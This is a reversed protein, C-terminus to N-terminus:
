LERRLERFKEEAIRYLEQRFAAYRELFLKGERTLSTQGGGTGGQRRQTLAFGLEEEAGELMRLGRSYSINLRRCAERVSGTLEIQVLLAETEGDFFRKERVLGIELDVHLLQRNHQELIRGYEETGGKQKLIGPDATEVWDVPYGSAEIAMRLGGKGTYAMIKELTGSQLMVPHGRRGQYVPIAILARSKLLLKVTHETFLPVNVTTFLIRDCRKEMYQFGLKASDFMETHRYDQNYLFVAGKQKLTHELERAREGTVIVIDEVGASQFNLIIREARTLKGVQKMPQFGEESSTLGAAIIVAGTKMNEMRGCSNCCQM